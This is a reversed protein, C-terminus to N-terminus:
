SPPVFGGPGPPSASPPVASPAFPPAPRAAYSRMEERRRREALVASLYAWGPTGPPPAPRVCAAVAATLRQGLDDRAWPSLQPARALFQRVALALDDGLGSLDLTSAWGALPPPMVAIAGGRSPVREQLVVTGAALDGIRKSRHSVLMAVLAALGLTLGPREVIVGVLGRVLAHRFRIPGGDDRVVRLGLAAKGLTRGNWLTELAVPYGLAVALTVVLSLAAGAAPDLNPQVAGILFTVAVLALGQVILDLFLAIARSPPRALRLDVAVAEGTVVTEGPHTM